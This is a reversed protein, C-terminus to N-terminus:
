AAKVFHEGFEFFGGIICIDRIEGLGAGGTGKHEQATDRPNEVLGARQDAKGDSSGLCLRIGM